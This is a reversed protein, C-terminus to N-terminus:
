TAIVPTATEAGLAVESLWKTGDANSWITISSGVKENATSLAVSDAAIDNFAVITDGVAAAVVISQDVECYFKAYFGRTLTPLTFTVSGSAGLNTFITGRDAATVTYATTKAVTKPYNTMNGMPDDDFIFQRSLHGRSYQDLGYLNGAIVPGAVYVPAVRDANNADFDQARLEVALIAVAVQSGDTAAPDYNTLFGSSTIKGLVLGARLITTPSAGSDRAAGSIVANDLMALGNVSGYGWLIQNETTPNSAAFGPQGFGGLRTM